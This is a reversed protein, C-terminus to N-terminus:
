VTLLPMHYLHVVGGQSQSCREGRGRGEGLQVRFLPYQEGRSAAASAAVRGGGGRCEERERWICPTVTCEGKGAERPLSRGRWRGSGEREDERGNSADAIRRNGALRRRNRRPFTAGAGTGTPDKSSSTSTSLLWSRDRGFVFRGCIRSRRPEDRASAENAAGVMSAKRPDSFRRKSEEETRGFRRIKLYARRSRNNRNKKRV